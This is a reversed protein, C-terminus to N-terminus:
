NVYRSRSPHRKDHSKRSEPLRKDAKYITEPLRDQHRIADAQLGIIQFQDRITKWASALDDRTPQKKPKPQKM